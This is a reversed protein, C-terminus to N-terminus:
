VKENSGDEEITDSSEEGYFDYANTKAKEEDREVTFYLMGNLIGCFIWGSIGINFAKRRGFKDILLAVFAPGLGRGLFHNSCLEIIDCTL